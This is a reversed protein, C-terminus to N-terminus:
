SPPAPHLRKWREAFLFFVAPGFSFLMVSFGAVLGVFTMAGACCQERRRVLIHAPVAVLLELISGKLVSRSLRAVWDDPTQTRGLRMFLVSWGAWILVGAGVAGWMAQSTRPHDITFFLEWLAFIAGLGLLGMMLGSVLVAPWLSRRSVPRRGALRVPVLLLAAQCLGMILLWAWYSWEAYISVVTSFKEDAMSVMGAPVTFFALILCYM